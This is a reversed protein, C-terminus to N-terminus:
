ASERGRVYEPFHQQVCKPCIGHTFDFDTRKSFYDAVEDWYGQDNRISKCHACIPLLGSLTKVNELAEALDQAVRRQVITQMAVRRLAEIANVQLETLRRPRSDIVCLTGLAMGEPDVLPAGLYFRISPDETVLPNESFRPDRTADEVFMTENPRRIAHDCFALERSTEQAELGVRAKFWQRTDDVLSILAIPVGAVEAAALVIDDFVQESPTDLLRYRRLAELRDAESDHKTLPM